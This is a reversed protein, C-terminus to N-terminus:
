YFIHNIILSTPLALFVGSILIFVGPALYAHGKIRIRKPNAPDYYVLVQRGTRFRGQWSRNIPPEAFITDDDTTTFCVVPTYNAGGKPRTGVRVSTVEGEARVGNRRLSLDRWQAWLSCGFLAATALWALPVALWSPM